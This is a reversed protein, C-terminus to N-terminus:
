SQRYHHNHKNMEKFKQKAKLLNKTLVEKKLSTTNKELSPFEDPIESIISSFEVKKPIFDTKHILSFIGRRIDWHDHYIENWYTIRKVLTKMHDPVVIEPLPCYVFLNGTTNFHIPLKNNHVYNTKKWVGPLTVYNGSEKDLKLSKTKNDFIYVVVDKEFAFTIIDKSVQKDLRPRRGHVLRNYADSIIRM